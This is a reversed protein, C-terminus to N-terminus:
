GSRSGSEAMLIAISLPIISFGEADSPLCFLNARHLVASKREGTVMGPFRVRDALGARRARSAFSEEIGFEDPGSLVLLANPYRVAVREFAALLRDAGKIPHLRGMFLVLQHHPEIRLERLAVEDREGCAPPPLTIGNPIVRCPTSVGLAAYSEREAETLAILMTAKRLIPKEIM